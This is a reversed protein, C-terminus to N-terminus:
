RVIGEKAQNICMEGVQGIVNGDIVRGKKVYGRPCAPLGDHKDWVNGGCLGGDEM